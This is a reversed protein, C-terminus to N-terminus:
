ILSVWRADEEQLRLTEDISSDSGFILIAAVGGFLAVPGMIAVVIWFSVM